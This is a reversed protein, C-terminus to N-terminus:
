NDIFFDYIILRGGSQLGQFAKKLLLKKKDDEWNHIVDGIM